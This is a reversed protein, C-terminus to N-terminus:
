QYLRELDSSPRAERLSFLRYIGGPSSTECRM